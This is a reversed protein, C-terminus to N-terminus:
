ELLIKNLNRIQPPFNSSQPIGVDNHQNKKGNQIKLYDKSM